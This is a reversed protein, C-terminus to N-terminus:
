TLNYEVGKLIPTFYSSNSNFIINIRNSSLYGLLENTNAGEFSFVETLTGASPHKVVVTGTTDYNNNKIDFSRFGIKTLTKTDICVLVDSVDKTRGDFLLRFSSISSATGGSYLPLYSFDHTEWNGGFSRIKVVKLDSCFAPWVDLTFCNTVLNTLRTNQRFWLWMYHDTLDADLSIPRIPSFIDNLDLIETFSSSSPQTTSNTKAYKVEIGEHVIRHNSDNVIYVNSTSSNIPLTIQGYQSDLSGTPSSHVFSSSYFDAYRTTGAITGVATTLSSILSTLAANETSSFTNTLDLADRLRSSSFYLKFLDNNLATLLKNFDESSSIGGAKPKKSILSELQKLVIEKPFGYNSM